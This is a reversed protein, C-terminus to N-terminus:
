LLNALLVLEFKLLSNSDGNATCKILMTELKLLRRKLLYRKVAVYSSAQICGTYLYDILTLIAPQTLEMRPM